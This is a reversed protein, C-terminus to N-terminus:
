IKKLIAGSEIHNTYAFQDFFAFKEIKHSKTIEKLDRYLTEPNCSIYIVQDFNKVLEVTLEDMGSRPPDVFITSFNNKDLFGYESLNIDKLRRFERVGNLAETFEESSMRIFSINEIGNLECNYLASKISTKSIETALVKEFKTSLPITFNGGGCYLECLNGKAELNDLVWRMMQKNVGSNPQTFGGEKYIIKFIKEDLEFEENIYDTALIVKQKRSRGIIKIKLKEQLNKANEIWDEELKKHYIMTVLMDEISSSLFEIAFLKTKLLENNYIEKILSKMTKDIKNSVISCEEIPLIKKEFSNMAYNIKGDLHYVRFEARDRFKEDKSKIIDFDGDYLNSFREKENEVKIQLQEEYSSEFLTCSGCKGFYDCKM